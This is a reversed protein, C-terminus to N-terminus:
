IDIIGNWKSHWVPNRIRDNQSGFYGRCNAFNPASGMHNVTHGTHDGFYGCGHFLTAVGGVDCIFITMGADFDCGRYTSIAARDSKSHLHGSRDSIVVSM